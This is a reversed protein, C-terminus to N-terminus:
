IASAAGLRVTTFSSGRGTLMQMCISAMGLLAMGVGKAAKPHIASLVAISSVALAGAVVPVPLSALAGLGLLAGLAM